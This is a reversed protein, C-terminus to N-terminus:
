MRTMKTKRIRTHTLKREERTKRKVERKDRGEKPKKKYEAEIKNDGRAEGGDENIRM